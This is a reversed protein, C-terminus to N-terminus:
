NTQTSLFNHISISKSESADKWRGKVITRYIPAKIKEVVIGFGNHRKVMTEKTHSFRFIANKFNVIPNLQEVQKTNEM